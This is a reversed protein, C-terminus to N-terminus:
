DGKAAEVLARVTACDEIVTAFKGDTTNVLCRIDRAFHGEDARPKRLSVVQDPNIDITQDHPGHLQLLRIAVLVVIMM